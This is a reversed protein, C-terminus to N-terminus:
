YGKRSDGPTSLVRAAQSPKMSCRRLQALLAGERSTDIPGFDISNRLQIDFNDLCMGDVRAVGAGSTARRERGRGQPAFKLRHAVIKGVSSASCNSSRAFKQFCAGRVPSPDSVCRAVLVSCRKSNLALAWHGNSVITYLAITTTVLLYRKFM